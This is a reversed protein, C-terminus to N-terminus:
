LETKLYNIQTYNDTWPNGREYVGLGATAAISLYWDTKAEEGNREAKIFDCMVSDIAVPDTAFLLSNPPKAM